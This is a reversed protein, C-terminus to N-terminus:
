KGFYGVGTLKPGETQCLWQVSPRLLCSLYSPLEEMSLVRGEGEAELCPLPRNACFGHCGPRCGCVWSRVGEGGRCAKTQRQCM